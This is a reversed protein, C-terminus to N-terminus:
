REHPDRTLTLFLSIWLKVPELMWPNGLAGHGTAAHETENTLKNCYKEVVLCARSEFPKDQKIRGFCHSRPIFSRVPTCAQMNTPFVGGLPVRAQSHEPM